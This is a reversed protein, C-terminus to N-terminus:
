SCFYHKDYVEHDTKIQFADGQFFQILDSLSKESALKRGKEIRAESCEYVDFHHVIGKELLAMEKVGAGVGVSIANKFSLAGPRM